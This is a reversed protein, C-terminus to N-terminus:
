ISKLNDRETLINMKASYGSNNWTTSDYGDYAIKASRTMGAKFADAFAKRKDFQGQFRLSWENFAQEFENM